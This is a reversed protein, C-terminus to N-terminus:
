KARPRIKLPMNDTPQKMPVARAKSEYGDLLSLEFRDVLMSIGLKASMEAFQFGICHHNGAGFPIYSFPCRNQEKREANFREPDFREPNTWVREDQHTLQVVANVVTGPPVQVGNLEIEETLFRPIVILPPHIRLTEKMVLSASDLGRLDSLKLEAIDWLAEGDSYVKEQWEPHQALFYSMWTLTIATTDHAAMLVFILHDVIEQDTLREGDENTAECLRSFLDNGPNERREPLVQNFYDVLFARGQLGKKYRTFPLKIPLATSANVIATIAKNIQSIDEKLDFGFFIKAAIKLTTLKFFPLADFETVGKLQDFEAEFIEPLDDLYGQLPKPKFAELIISRHTKHKEGDMLMLGNPFLEGIATEWAEANHTKKASDVLLVKNAEPDTVFLSHGLPHRMKFLDGNQKKQEQFFPITNTTFPIFSGLIPWEGQGGPIHNLESYDALKM